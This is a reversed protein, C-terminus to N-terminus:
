RKRLMMILILGIVVIAVIAAAGIGLVYTDTMPAPTPTPAPTVVPEVATFATESYSAYYSDSGAFTAVVTYKGPIDPEWEFSFFGSLDSTTTGINRYNGNSDIVDIWVEVGTADTPLPQDMYVYEMWPSMYDDSIAPVGNPFRASQSYDATGASMDTVTGKIVFPTGTMVATDPATVTVASPGKGICYNQMDYSNFTIMKGDAIIPNMMWGSLNWLNEGTEVDYCYIKEGRYLPQNPSHEGTSVYVKNDAIALGGWLPWSGYPTELGSSGVYGDWLLAGNTIDYCLLDGSYSTAFVKNYAIYAPGDGITCTYVGWDNPNPDTIWLQEGTFVDYGYWQKTEQKYVVYIGDGSQQSFSADSEVLADDGTRTKTWLMHGDETSYGAEVVIRDISNASRALIVGDQQDIRNISQSVGLDPISVNWMIGASANYQDTYYNPRWYDPNGSGFAANPIPGPPAGYLIAHTSNYLSLTDQQANLIYVLLDGNEDQILPPFFSPYPLDTFALLEKGSWADYMQVGNPGWLYPIVGHQNLSEYDLLQGFAINGDARWLEEGTYLDIAVFGNGARNNVEPLNRYFIGNMIIAPYCKLEYSDGTYFGLSGYQGGVLGGMAVEYTWLIHASDPATTYPNYKGNSNYYNVGEPFGIQPMGLWQGSISAWDRNQADIPRSWFETPLPSAPWGPIPDDQVELTTESSVSGLYTTGAYTEEAMESKFKYTGTMTPTYSFWAGGIPDSLLERTQINGNPDTVTVTFDWQVVVSFGPGSPPLLQTWTQVHVDQGVGVPDPAVAIYTYTIRDAANVSQLCVLTSAFMSLMLLLAIVSYIRKNSIKM